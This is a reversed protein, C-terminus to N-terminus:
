LAKQGHRIFGESSQDILSHVHMVMYYLTIFSNIIYYGSSFTCEWLIKM